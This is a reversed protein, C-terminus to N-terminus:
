GAPVLRFNWLAGDTDRLQFLLWGGRISFKFEDAVRTRTDLSRVAHLLLGGAAIRWQGKALEEPSGEGLDPQLVSFSGDARFLLERKTHGKRRSGMPAGGLIDAVTLPPGHAWAQAIRGHRRVEDLTQRRDVVYAVGSPDFM